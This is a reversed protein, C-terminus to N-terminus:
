RASSVRVILDEWERCRNRFDFRERVQNRAKIGMRTRLSEDGALMLIARAMQDVAGVDVLLGTRGDEIIEDPGFDCRTSIAGLGLGLAEILAYPLGEAESSLVFLDAQALIPFPNPCHGPFHVQHQINLRRAKDKLRSLLPGGGCCILQVQTTELVRAVAELLLDWHKVGFARGVTVLLLTGDRRTWHAPEQVLSDIAEFDVPNFIRAVKHAQKPYHVKIARQLGASNAVIVKALPYLWRLLHTRFRIDKRGPNTDVRAIWAPRQSLFLLTLGIVVNVATGVGLVVHPSTQRILRHLRCIAKPLDGAGGYDLVQVPVDKPLDYGIDNQLLVLRPLIRRHDLGKLLYGAFRQAGGINLSNSLILVQVSDRDM